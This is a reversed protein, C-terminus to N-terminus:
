SQLHITKKERTARQEDITFKYLQKVVACSFVDISMLCLCVIFLCCFFFQVNLLLLYIFVYIVVLTPSTIKKYCENKILLKITLKKKERNSLQKSKPCM